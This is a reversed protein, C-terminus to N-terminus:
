KYHNSVKPVINLQQSHTAKRDLGVAGSPNRTAFKTTRVFGGITM